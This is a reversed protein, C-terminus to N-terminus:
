IVPSCTRHRVTSIDCRSNHCKAIIDDDATAISRRGTEGNAGRSLNGHRCELRFCEGCVESVRRRSSKAEFLRQNAISVSLRREDLKLFASRRMSSTNRRPCAIYKKLNRGSPMPGHQYQFAHTQSFPM